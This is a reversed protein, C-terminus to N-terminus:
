SGLKMPNRASRTMLSSRTCGPTPKPFCACRSMSIMEYTSSPVSACLSEIPVPESILGPSTCRMVAPVPTVCLSIFGDLSSGTCKRCIQIM